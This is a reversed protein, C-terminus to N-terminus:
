SLFFNLINPTYILLLIIPLLLVLSAIGIKLPIKQLEAEIKIEKKERIIAIQRNLTKITQDSYNSTEIMNLLINNIDTSPIRDKLTQLTEKFTKGLKREALAKKFERALESEINSTTIELALNLSKESELTVLLIEFFNIAEKELKEKRRQIPLNLVLYEYVIFFLFSIIPALLYYKKLLILSILFVILTLLYQYNLITYPNYNCYLGLLMIKQNIREVTTKLYIRKALNHTKKM